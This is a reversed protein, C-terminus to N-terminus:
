APFPMVSRCCGCYICLFRKHEEVHCIAWGAEGAAEAMGSVGAQLTTGGPSAEHCKRLGAKNRCFPIGAMQVNPCSGALRLVRELLAKAERLLRRSAHSDHRNQRALQMKTQAFEHIGRADYLLADRLASVAVYEPHAPLTVRFWTRGEDFDFLPDGSGNDRM